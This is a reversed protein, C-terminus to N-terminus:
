PHANPTPFCYHGARSVGFECHNHRGQKGTIRITHTSILEGDGAAFAMEYVGAQDAGPTWELTGTGDKRDTFVCGRPLPHAVLTPAQGDPDKAFHVVTAPVVSMSIKMENFLLM